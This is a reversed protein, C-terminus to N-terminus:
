IKMSKLPASIIKCGVTFKQFGSTFWVFIVRFIKLIVELVFGEPLVKYAVFFIKNSQVNRSQWLTVIYIFFLKRLSSNSTLFPVKQTVKSVLISTRLGYLPKSFIRIGCLKFVGLFDLFNWMYAVSISLCHRTVEMKRNWLMPQYSM